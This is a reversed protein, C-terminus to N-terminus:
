GSIPVVKLEARDRFQFPQQYFNNGDQFEAFGKLWVDVWTLKYQPHKDGDLIIEYEMSELESSGYGKIRQIEGQISASVLQKIGIEGKGSIASSWEIAVTHEISRHRKVKIVVGKPVNVLESAAQSTIEEPEITIKIFKQKQAQGTSVQDNVGTNLNELNYSTSPQGGLIAPEIPIEPMNKQIQRKLAEIKADDDNSNIDDKQSDKTEIDSVQSTSASFINDAKGLSIGIVGMIAIIFVVIIVFVIFEM